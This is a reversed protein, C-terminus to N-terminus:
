GRLKTMYTQIQNRCLDPVSSGHSWKGYWDATLRVTDDFSLAPRWGLDTRAKSSDLRLMKAEHLEPADSAIDVRGRGLADVVATAVDVVPREDSRDPGFNWGSDFGERDNASENALQEALQMYGCLPELVHQWPRVSNPSRLEVCGSDGLCGRVIDPILRDDSWDGGGVVTGARVTAIQAPHGGAGFYSRRMSAAALEACGKSASYPDHGGMPDNERYGWMWERNEYCKDSTAIVVAKVSDSESAAHLLNVLGVVNTAFTEAPQSYSRRVLAQAALHFIIEPKAEQLVNAVAAADNIDAIRSNIWGNLDLLVSLNPDTEPALAFGTVDAGMEALWFSLWAGKFGTHGTVLVRKGSWFDPSM